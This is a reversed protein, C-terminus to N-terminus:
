RTRACTTGPTSPFDATLPVKAISATFGAFVEYFGYSIEPFMVKDQEGAFAMFAFNLIDDSGNAVYINEPKM